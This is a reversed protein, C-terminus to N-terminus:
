PIAAGVCVLRNFAIVAKLVEIGFKYFTFNILYKFLKNFNEDADPRKIDKFIYEPVESTEGMKKRYYKQRRTIFTSITVLILFWLHPAIMQILSENQSIKRFGLWEANNSTWESINKGVCKNEFYEQHIYSCQYIMKAIFTTASFLTISRIAWTQITKSSSVGVIALIVFM